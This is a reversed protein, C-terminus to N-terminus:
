IITTATIVTGTGVIFIPKGVCGIRTVTVMGSSPTGTTLDTSVEM